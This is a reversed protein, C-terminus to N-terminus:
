KNAYGAPATEAMNVAVESNATTAVSTLRAQEVALDEKKEQLEAIQNEIASLEYDYNTAKTGQSVYILGVILVLLGVIVGQSIKGLGKTEHKVFNQNRGYSMTMGNRRTMYTQNRMKKGRLKQKKRKIKIKGKWRTKTRPPAKLLAVLLKLGAEPLDYLNKAVGEFM